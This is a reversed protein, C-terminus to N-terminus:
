GSLKVMLVEVNEISPFYAVLESTKATLSATVYRKDLVLASTM